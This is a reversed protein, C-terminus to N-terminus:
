MIYKKLIIFHKLGTFYLVLREKKRRKKHNKPIKHKQQTKKSGSKQLFIQYKFFINLFYM